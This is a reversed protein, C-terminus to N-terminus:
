LLTFTVKYHIFKLKKFLRSSHVHIEIEDAHIINHGRIFFTNISIM